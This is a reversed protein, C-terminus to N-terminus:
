DGDLSNFGAVVGLKPGLQQVTLRRITEVDQQLLEVRFRGQKASVGSFDPDGLKAARVSAAQFAVSLREAIVPHDAALIM